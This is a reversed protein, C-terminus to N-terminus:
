CVQLQGALPLLAELLLEVSAALRARHPTGVFVTL